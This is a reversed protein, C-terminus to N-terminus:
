VFTITSYESYKKQRFVIDKDLQHIIAPIAKKGSKALNGPTHTERNAMKRNTATLVKLFSCPKRYDYNMVEVWLYHLMWSGDTNSRWAFHGSPIAYMILCDNNCLVIPRDEWIDVFGRADTDDVSQVRALHQDSEVTEEESNKGDYYSPFSDNHGASPQTWIVQKAKNDNGDNAQIVAIEAGLDTKSGRCAQIFFLKPKGKLSPCNDDSFMELIDGTFIYQDDSSYIAHEKKGNKRPNEKEDGHSSVILAFSDFASHDTDRAAKLINLTSAKNLNKCDNNMQYYGLKQLIDKSKTVDFQAGDRNNFNIFRKNVILVALGRHPFSFDYKDLDHIRTDHSMAKTNAPHHREYSEIVSRSLPTYKDYEAKVNGLKPEEFHDPAGTSTKLTCGGIIDSSHSKRVIQIYPHRPKVGREYLMELPKLETQLATDIQQEKAKDNTSKQFPTTEKDKAKSKGFCSFLKMFAIDGDDTVHYAGVSINNSVTDYEHLDDETVVGHDTQHDDSVTDNERLHYETVVGHGIQHDDSVTDNECLHYETVVGHGIKHDDSVTDNERLHYETVVGHDTQHDDSVTDYEHRLIESILEFDGQHNNSVVDNNVTDEESVFDRDNDNYNGNLVIDRCHGHSKLTIGQNEDNTEERTLNSISDNQKDSNARKVDLLDKQALNDDKWPNGAQSEHGMKTELNTQESM